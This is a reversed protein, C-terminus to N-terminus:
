HSKRPKIIWWPPGVTLMRRIHIKALFEKPLLQLLLIGYIKFSGLSIEISQSSFIAQVTSIGRFWFFETMTKVLSKRKKKKDMNDIQFEREEETMKVKEEWVIPINPFISQERRLNMLPEFEKRLTTQVRPTKVLWQRPNLSARPPRQGDSLYFVWSIKEM